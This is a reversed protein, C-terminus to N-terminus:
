RANRAKRYWRGCLYVILSGTLAIGAGRPIGQTGLEVVWWAGFGIIALGSLIGVFCAAAGFLPVVSRRRPPPAYALIPKPDTM